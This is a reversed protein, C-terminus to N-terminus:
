IDGCDKVFSERCVPVTIRAKFTIQTGANKIEMALTQPSSQHVIWGHTKPNYSLFLEGDYYFNWLGMSSNDEQIECGWIEQLFHFDARVSCHSRWERHGEAKGAWTLFELWAAGGREGGHRGTSASYRSGGHQIGCDGNRVGVGLRILPFVYTGATQRLSEQFLSGIVRTGDRSEGGKQDQLAMIDALTMKLDKGKEMLDETEADWTEAGLVAEAWLGQPEARSKESDYSLFPQGDLQGEAFFGSQVSGDQSVVTLNYHLSHAGTSDSLTWVRKSTGAM